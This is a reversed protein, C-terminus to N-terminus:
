DTDRATTQEEKLFDKSCSNFIPAATGLVLVAAIIPKINKM